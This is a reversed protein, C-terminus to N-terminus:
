HKFRVRAELKVCVAEHYGETGKKGMGTKKVRNIMLAKTSLVVHNVAASVFHVLFIASLLACVEAM